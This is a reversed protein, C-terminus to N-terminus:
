KQEISWALHTIALGLPNNRLIIENQSPTQYHYNLNAIYNKTQVREGSHVNRWDEQWRVDVTHASNRVASIITINNVFQQALVNSNNEQYFEKLVQTAEGTTFSLAAIKNNANAEGDVSVTRANRIFKKMFYAALAPKLSQFESTNANAVTLVENGHVIFPMPKIKTEGAIVVLGIIASLIVLSLIFIVRYSNELKTQISGYMDNWLARSQLYPNNALSKEFQRKKLIEKQHASRKVRKKQELYRDKKEVWQKIFFSM